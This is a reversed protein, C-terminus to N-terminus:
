PQIGGGGKIIVEPDKSLVVKGDKEKVSLEYLWSEDEAHKTPNGSNAFKKSSTIRKEANPFRDKQNAKRKIHLTHSEYIDAVVWCVRGAKGPGEDVYITAPDPNVTIKKEQYDLSIEVKSYNKAGPCNEPQEATIQPGLLCSLGCLGIVVPALRHSSGKKM